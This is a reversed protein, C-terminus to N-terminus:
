ESLEGNVRADNSKLFNSRSSKVTKRVRRQWLGDFNGDRRME